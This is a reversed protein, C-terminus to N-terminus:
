IPFFSTCQVTSFIKPGKHLCHPIVLILLFLIILYLVQFELLSIFSVEPKSHLPINLLNEYQALSFIIHVWILPFLISGLPMLPLQHSLFLCTHTSNFPQLFYSLYCLPLTIFLIPIFCSCLCDKTHSYPFSCICNNLCVYLHM